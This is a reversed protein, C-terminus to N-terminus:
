AGDILSRRLFEWAFYAGAQPVGSTVFFGTMIESVFGALLRAFRRARAWRAVHRVIVAIENEFTDMMGYTM